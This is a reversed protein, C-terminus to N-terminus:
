RIVAGLQAEAQLGAFCQPVALRKRVVGSSPHLIQPQATDALFDRKGGSGIADHRREIEGQLPEVALM